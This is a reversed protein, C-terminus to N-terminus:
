GTDSEDTADAPEPFAPGPRDREGPRERGLLDFGVLWLQRVLIKLDFCLTQESIYQTDYRLKEEPDTSSVGRVQALGTLGPKVFWRRRWANAEKEIRTEEEAWVARPGVVSMHGALVNWLQPAEDLHTRRLLRGLDTIRDNEDDETPTASADGVAMTRLKYLTFTDGLAATREQTYFVPDGDDLRVAVAVALLLPALVVLGATACAVDFARKALRDLPDWPQLAVEVLRGTETGNTLVSDAHDRHVKAVIGHRHCSDLGGFFEARDARAFALVATDVDQEVLVDDLRSLGGLHPLDADGDERESRRMMANSAGGDSRKTPKVPRPADSDRSGPSSVYGLLEGEVADAIEDFYDSDTGVIVTRGGASRPRRRVVLFFLPVTAVLTSVLVITTGRPFRYTVDFYGITALAFTGILTRAAALTMTDLIRRPRPKYLPTLVVVYATVALAAKEVFSADVVETEFPMHGILPLLAFADRVVALRTLSLAAVVLLCVGTASGLRHRWTQQM